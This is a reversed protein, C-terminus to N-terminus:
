YNAAYWNDFYSDENAQIMGAAPDPLNYEIYEKSSKSFCKKSSYNYLMTEGKKITLGTEACRSNFKAVIIKKM